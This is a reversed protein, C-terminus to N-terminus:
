PTVFLSSYSSWGPSSSYLSMAGTSPLHVAALGYCGDFISAGATPPTAPSVTVNRLNCQRFAYDGISTVNAPITVGSLSFCQLFAYSGITTVSDPITVSALISCWGFAYDGISTVGDPITMSTLSSSAFATDGISIVGPPITYNGVRGDPYAVLITQSKNFLVGDLSSYATNADDVVFDTLNYCCMFAFDGISAVNEPITVGTLADCEAFATNGISTVGEPITYSGARGHPYAVLTTQSKNFLVGGLSSYSMSTDDVEIDTLSSYTDLAFDGISAVSGPITLSTLGTCSYFAYDGISTVGEPITVGTLGACWYFAYNGISTVGAPIAYSGTRGGPYAVLMTKSKNFLVGELSSYATNAENVVIEQLLECGGFAVKGISTVSAPITLSTLAGSSSFAFDGISIISGPITVRTIDGYLASSGISTVPLGRWYQPISVSGTIWSITHVYYSEGDPNLDYALGTTSWMAYVTIDGTIKTTLDFIMGNGDESTNWGAFICGAKIPETPLVSVTTAPATVTQTAPSADADAGQSDFTVTYTQTAASSGGNDSSSSCATFSLSIIFALAVIIKRKMLNM